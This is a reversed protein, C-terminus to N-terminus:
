KRGEHELSYHNGDQFRGGWRALPHLSEWYEGLPKHSESHPLFNGDRFLNFDVAIRECHVSNKIGKGAKANLIAQEPTRYTEGYTLEYGRQTAYKVLDAVLRVFLSQKQRLTMPQTLNDSM